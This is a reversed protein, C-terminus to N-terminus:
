LGAKWDPLSYEPTCRFPHHGYVDNRFQDWRNFIIGTVRTQDGELRQTAAQPPKWDPYNERVVLVLGVSWDGLGTSYDCSWESRQSSTHRGRAM